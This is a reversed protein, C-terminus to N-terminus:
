PEAIRISSVRGGHLEFTFPWPGYTWLETGEEESPGLHSPEGFQQLLTDSPTGLDIHSFSYGKAASRGTLQLAAVRNKVVTVILYPYEGEKELFYVWGTQGDPQSLTRSPKGLAKTVAKIDDGVVFPGMHQCARSLVGPETVASRLKEPVAVRCGFGAGARMWEGRLEGINTPEGAQAWAAVSGFAAIMLVAIVCRAAAQMGRGRVSM